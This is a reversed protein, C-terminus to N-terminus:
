ASQRLYAAMVGTNFSDHTAGSNATRPVAAVDKDGGVGSELILNQSNITSIGYSFLRSNNEYMAANMQCDTSCFTRTPGSVFNWFGGSYVNIDTSNYIRQYIGMRCMADSASCWSFTPDSPLASDAWPAPPLLTNGTGQYYAAEGQQLGLFVNKANYMNMQYLAQHEIGIGLLWTGGQAEVLFGGGSSPVSTNSGDLDHDAGWSWSNEWYTSSSPTLHACLRAANCTNPSSCGTEAKSGRAGGIRFHCNFFGVDGPKDGAMNVEVMIAGPLIDAITFVFDTMQATGVDGANGVKIMPTPNKADKFNSGTASLQTFSEGILRSGVPVLLTSSILYIGSPFYLLQKGAASNLIAQLSATDDAVWDGAVPYAAVSKVNVVNSVDYEAYNPPVVTQYFGTSNVLTQPRSTTLKTGSSHNPTASSATYINGRTWTTGPMISGTLVVTGGSKVTAPVSSDVIVNELNLSNQTNSSSFAATNMVTSTNTATSDILNFLGNGGSTTDIGVTCGEFRLGQGTGQVLSTISVATQVNKFYLNKLHYQTASLSTGVGGGFFQLDNFILPSGNSPTSIGTHAAAGIPMNFMVNSLQCGQSLGWQLLTITKTGSVATSDLVLNKIEHYFGVLGTYRPDVGNLIYASSFGAAAKITPRNTPDGMLVTGIYNQLPSKVLYTGAPFYVVAPQGTSGFVSGTNRTGSSDGTNIAKQIAASDDTTGDGKAGYDKVNRFVTWNKGNPIEPSIGNHKITEYWYGGTAEIDRQTSEPRAVALVTAALGLLIFSVRM